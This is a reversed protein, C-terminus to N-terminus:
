QQRCSLQHISLNYQALAIDDDDVSATVPLRTETGTRESKKKTTVYTIVLQTHTCNITPVVLFGSCM